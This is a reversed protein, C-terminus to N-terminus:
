SRSGSTTDYTCSTGCRGVAAHLRECDDAAQRLAQALARMQAPSMDADGGPLNAVCALPEGLYSTTHRVLLQSEM